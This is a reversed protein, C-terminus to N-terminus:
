TSRSWGSHSTETYEYNDSFLTGDRADEWFAKGVPELAARVDSVEGGQSIVEALDRVAQTLKPGVFVGSALGDLMTRYQQAGYSSLKKSADSPSLSSGGYGGSPNQVVLGRWSVYRNGHSSGSPDYGVMFGSEGQPILSRTKWPNGKGQLMFEGVIEVSQPITGSEESDSIGDNDSDTDLYDPTGDTDTDVAERVKDLEEAIIRRLQRKTIKV